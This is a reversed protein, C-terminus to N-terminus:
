RHAGPSPVEHTQMTCVLILDPSLILLWEPWQLVFPFLYHFKTSYHFSFTRIKTSKHNHIQSAVSGKYVRIEYKLKLFLRFIDTISIM